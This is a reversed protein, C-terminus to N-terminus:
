TNDLMWTGDLQEVLAGLSAHKPWRDEDDYGAAFIKVLATILARHQDEPDDPNPGLPPVTMDTMDTRDTM